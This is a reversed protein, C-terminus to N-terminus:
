AAERSSFYRPQRIPLIPLEAAVRHAKHTLGHVVAKGPADEGSFSWGCTCSAVEVHRNIVAPQELRV